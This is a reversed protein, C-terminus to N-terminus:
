EYKTLGAEKAGIKTYSILTSWEPVDNKGLDWINPMYKLHQVKGCRCTRITVEQHYANSISKHYNWKHGFIKCILKKM